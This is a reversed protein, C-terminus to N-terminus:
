DDDHADGKHDLAEMLELIRTGREATTDLKFVINPTTRIRLWDGIDRKIM